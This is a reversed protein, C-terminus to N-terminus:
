FLSFPGWFFESFLEYPRTGSGGLSGLGGLLNCIVCLFFIFMGWDPDPTKKSVLALLIPIPALGVSLWVLTMAPNRQKENRLNNTAGDQQPDPKNRVFARSLLFALIVVAALMVPVHAIPVMRFATILISLGSILIMLVVAVSLATGLSLREERRAPGAFWCGAMGYVAGCVAGHFVNFIAGAVQVTFYSDYTIHRFFLQWFHFRSLLAPVFLLVIAYWFRDRHRMLRAVPGDANSRCCRVVWFVVGVAALLEILWFGSMFPFRNNM